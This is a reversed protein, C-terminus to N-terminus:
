KNKKIAVKFSVEEGILSIYFFPLLSIFFERCVGFTTGATDASASGGVLLAFASISNVVLSLVYFQWIYFMIKCNKQSAVPIEVDIAHYFCPKWPCFSPLPPFNKVSGGQFLNTKNHLLKRQNIYSSQMSQKVEVSHYAHKVHCLTVVSWFMWCIM